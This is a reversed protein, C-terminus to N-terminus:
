SESASTGRRRRSIAGNIAQRCLEPMSLGIEAASMPVLSRDTMGPISNLELFWPRGEEDIRFDIRVVGETGCLQNIREAIKSADLAARDNVISYTTTASEYKADFDYIGSPAFIEVAPLVSGDILPVTIERGSVYPQVVCTDDFAMAGRIATMLDDCPDSPGRKVVSIGVSSGQRSPKVVWRSSKNPKATLQAIAALWQDEPSGSKLVCDPPCDIKHQSLYRSCKVKDFTLESARSSSGVFIRDDSELTRQLIGDEGGTGHLLPFVVDCPLSRWQQVAPDVLTSEFSDLQSVARHVAAGSAKSIEKEASDGGALILVKM